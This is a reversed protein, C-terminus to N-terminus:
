ANRLTPLRRKAERQDELISRLRDVVEPSEDALNRREEPDLTLNHM